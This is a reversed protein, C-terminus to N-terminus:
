VSEIRPPITIVRVFCMRCTDTRVSSVQTARNKTGRPAGGRGPSWADTFSALPVRVRHFADDPSAAVPVRFPAKYCGRSQPVVGGGRCAYAPFRAGAAIAVRFGGYSTLSRVQPIKVSLGLM